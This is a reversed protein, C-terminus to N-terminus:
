PHDKLQVEANRGSYKHIKMHLTVPVQKAPPAAAPQHPVAAQWGAQTATVTFVPANNPFAAYGRAVNDVLTWQANHIKLIHADYEGTAATLITASSHKVVINSLHPM